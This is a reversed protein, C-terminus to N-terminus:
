GEVISVEASASHQLFIARNVEASLIWGDLNRSARQCVRRQHGPDIFDPGCKFPQVTSGRRKLAAMVGLAVTTKGRRRELTRRDRIGEAEHSIRRSSLKRYAYSRQCKQLHPLHRRRQEHRYLESL